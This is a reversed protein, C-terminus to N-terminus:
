QGALAKQVVGAWKKGMDDSYGSQHIIRGKKDIIFIRPLSKVGYDRSVKSGRLLQTHNYGIRKLYAIPDGGKEMCNISLFAVNKDKFQEHLKKLIAHTEPCGRCRTAWFDIVVIKGRYDSLKHKHGDLDSLEWAPAADGVAPIPKRGAAKRKIERKEDREAAKADALRGTEDEVSRDAVADADQDEDTRTPGAVRQPPSRPVLPLPLAALRPRPLDFIGDAFVGNTHLDTLILVTSEPSELGGTAADTPMIYEVRRPLHDDVGFFWRQRTCAAFRGVNAVKAGGGEPPKLELDVRHCAVGAVDHKGGYIVERAELQDALPEASLFERLVMCMERRNAVTAPHKKQDIELLWAKSDFRIRLFNGDHTLAFSTTPEFGFVRQGIRGRAAVKGGFAMPPDDPTRRALKVKGSMLPADAMQSGTAELRVNYTATTVLRTAKAAERLIVRPDPDDPYGIFVFVAALTSL